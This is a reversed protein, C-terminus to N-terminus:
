PLWRDLLDRVRASVEDPSGAADVVEIRGPFRRALDLYAARVRRHFSIEEAEFRGEAAAAPDCSNRARARGLGTEPDLDLLITRDPEVVGLLRAM